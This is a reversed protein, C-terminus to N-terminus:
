EQDDDDDNDDDSEADGPEQVDFGSSEDLGPIVPQILDWKVFVSEFLLLDLELHQEKEFLKEMVVTYNKVGKAGTKPEVKKIVFSSEIVNSKKMDKEHEKVFSITIKEDWFSQANCFEELSYNGTLEVVTKKNDATKTPRCFFEFTGSFKEKM